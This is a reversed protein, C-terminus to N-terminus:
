TSKLIQNDFAEDVFDPNATGFRSKLYTVSNNSLTGDVKSQAVFAFWQEPHSNRYNDWGRSTTSFGPQEVSPKYKDRFKVDLETIQHITLGELVNCGYVPATVKTGSVQKEDHAFYVGKQGLGSISIEM